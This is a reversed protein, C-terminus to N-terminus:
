AGQGPIGAPQPLEAPKRKPVVVGASMIMKLGDDVSMELEIIDKKPVIIFFGSTPNPTTPVFVNIVDEGTKAQAEGIDSSSQLALTWLGKRPYEIMLVKRFSQGGSSFVTEMLQKVSAYISRVLPIRALFREWVDVLKNGFLHAVFMGTGLVIVAAILVGLGPIHMGFLAEPRYQAPILLMTKDLLDVLFKIVMFTVGLPVWVLLGAILYRKM